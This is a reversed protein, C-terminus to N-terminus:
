FENTVSIWDFNNYLHKTHLFELFIRKISACNILNNRDATVTYGANIQVTKGDPMDKNKARFHEFSDSSSYMRIEVIGYYKSCLTQVYSGTQKDELIVPVFSSQLRDFLSIIDDENASRTITENNKILIM